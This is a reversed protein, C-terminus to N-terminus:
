GQKAVKWIVNTTRRHLKQVQLKIDMYFIPYFYSYTLDCFLGEYKRTAVVAYLSRLYIPEQQDIYGYNIYNVNPVLVGNSFSRWSYM